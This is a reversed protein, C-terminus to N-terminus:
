WPPKAALGSEDIPCGEEFNQAVAITAGDKALLSIWGDCPWPKLIAYGEVAWDAHGRVQLSGDAVCGMLPRM